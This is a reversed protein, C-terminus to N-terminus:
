EIKEGRKLVQCGKGHGVEWYSRRKLMQRGDDYGAGECERWSSSYAYEGVYQGVTEWNSWREMPDADYGVGLKELVSTPVLIERGCVGGQELMGYITNTREVVWGKRTKRIEM